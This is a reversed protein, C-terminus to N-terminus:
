SAVSINFISNSIQLLTDESYDIAYLDLSLPLIKYSRGLFSSALIKGILEAVTLESPDVELGAANISQHSLERITDDFKILVHFPIQGLFAKKASLELYKVYRGFGSELYPHFKKSILNEIEIFATKESTMTNDGTNYRTLALSIQHIHGIALTARMM